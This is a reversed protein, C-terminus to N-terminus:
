PKVRKCEEQIIKRIDDKWEACLDDKRPLDPWDIPALVVVFNDSYAENISRFLTSEDTFPQPSPKVNVLIGEEENRSTERVSKIGYSHAIVFDPDIPLKPSLKKGLYDAVRTEVAAAVSESKQKHLGKM